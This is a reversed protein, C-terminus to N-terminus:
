HPGGALFNARGHDLGFKIGDNQPILKTFRKPLQYHAVVNFYISDQLIMKASSLVNSFYRKSSKM